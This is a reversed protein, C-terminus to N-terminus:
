LYNQSANVVTYVANSVFSKKVYIVSCHVNIVSISIKAIQKKANLSHILIKLKKRASQVNKMNKLYIINLYVIMLINKIM